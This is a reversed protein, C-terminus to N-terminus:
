ASLTALTVEIALRDQLLIRNSDQTQVRSRQQYSNHDLLERREQGTRNGFAGGISSVRYGKPFMPMSNYCLDTRFKVAQYIMALSFCRLGARCVMTYYMDLEIHKVDNM